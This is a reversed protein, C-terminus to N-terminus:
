PNIAALSKAPPASPAEQAMVHSVAGAIIVVLASAPLTKRPM